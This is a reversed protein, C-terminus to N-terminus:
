LIMWTFLFKQASRVRFYKLSQGRYVVQYEFWIAKRQCGDVPLDFPIVDKEVGIIRETIKVEIM